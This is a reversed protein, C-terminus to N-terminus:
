SEQPEMEKPTNHFSHATVTRSELKIWTLTISKLPLGSLLGECDDAYHQPASPFDAMEMDKGTKDVHLLDLRIASISDANPKLANEQKTLQEDVEVVARVIGQMWTVVADICKRFYKMSDGFRKIIQIMFINEWDPTSTIPSTMIIVSSLMFSNHLKLWIVNKIANSASIFEAETKSTAECEQKKSQWIVPTNSLMCVLGSTSKRTEKDGTWDTDCYTLFDNANAYMSGLEITGKLYRLIRKILQCHKQTPKELARSAANVALAIDPRSVVQLYM